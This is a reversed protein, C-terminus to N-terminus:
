SKQKKNSTRATPADACTCWPTVERDCHLDANIVTVPTDSISIRVKSTVNYVLTHMGTVRDRRRTIEKQNFCKVNDRKRVVKDHIHHFTHLTGTSLNGTQKMILGANKLRVAFEDDELGWGWYRNSFGNVEEFEKRKLILIGGAYTKHYHYIPHLYPPTLHMPTSDPLYSIEPNLPLLDVDHICIFPCSKRMELFGVNILSGRNFRWKDVQNIVIIEHSVGQRNLFKKIYPAFELLETFRDRFPVLICLHNTLNPPQSPPTECPCSNQNVPTVALLVCVSFTILIGYIFLREVKYKWIWM